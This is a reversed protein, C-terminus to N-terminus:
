AIRGDSHGRSHNSQNRPVKGVMSTDARMARVECGDLARLTTRGRRCGTVLLEAHGTQTIVLLVDGRKASITM